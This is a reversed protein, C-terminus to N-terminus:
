KNEQPEKKDKSDTLYIVVRRNSETGISNTSVGEIKQIESHIIRREYSNMPELMYSRRDKLTKKAMRRALARLTEARKQRYNEIDVTVHYKDSDTDAGEKKAHKVSRIRALNALHQFADLTEGHYGILAAADEGKIVIRQIDEDEEDRFMEATTNIHLDEIVNRVFKLAPSDQLEKPTVAAEELQVPADKAANTEPENKKRGDRDKKPAPANKAPNTRQQVNRPADAKEAPEQKQPVPEEDSIGSSFVRVKAPVKKLGFLGSKHEREVISFELGADELNDVGLQTKANELALEVTDGTFIMDTSM